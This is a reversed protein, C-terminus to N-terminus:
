VEARHPQITLDGSSKSMNLVRREIRKLATALHEFLDDERHINGKVYEILQEREDSNDLDFPRCTYGKGKVLFANSVRSYGALIGPDVAEKNRFPEEHTTPAEGVSAGLQKLQPLYDIMGELWEHVVADPLYRAGFYFLQENCLDVYQKEAQEAVARDPSKMGVMVRQFTDSCGRIVEFNLKKRNVVYTYAAALIALAGIIQLLQSILSLITFM